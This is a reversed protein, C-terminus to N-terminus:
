LDLDGPGTFDHARDVLVPGLEGHERVVPDAPASPPPISPLDRQPVRFGATDPLVRCDCHPHIPLLQAVNYVNEAATRCLDCSRGTPVRRYHQFGLAEFASAAAFRHALVADTDALVVARKRATERARDIRRRRRLERRVDVVPRAYVQEPPTGNRLVPGTVQEPTVIPTITIGWETSLEDLYAAVLQGINVEAGSTIPLILNLWATLDDDGPGGVDRWVDSTLRRLERRIIDYERGYAQVLEAPSAM